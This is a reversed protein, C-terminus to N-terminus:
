KVPAPLACKLIPPGYHPQGFRHDAEASKWGECWAEFYLGGREYPCDAMRVERRYAEAGEEWLARQTDLRM